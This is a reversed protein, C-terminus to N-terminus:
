ACIAIQRKGSVCSLSLNHSDTVFFVPLNSYKGLSSLKNRSLLNVENLFSLFLFDTFPNFIVELQSFDNQVGLHKNSIIKGFIITCFEDCEKEKADKLESFGSACLSDTGQWAAM